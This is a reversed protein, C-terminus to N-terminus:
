DSKRMLDSKGGLDSQAIEKQGLECSSQHASAARGRERGVADESDGATVLSLASALM